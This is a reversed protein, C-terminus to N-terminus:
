REDGEIQMRSEIGKDQRELSLMARWDVLGGQLGSRLKMIEGPDLGLIRTPKGVLHRDYKFPDVTRMAIDIEIIGRAQRQIEFLIESPTFPQTSTRGGEKGVRPHTRKKVNM